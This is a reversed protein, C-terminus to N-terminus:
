NEAASETEAEETLLEPDVQRDEEAKQALNTARILGEAVSKFAEEEMQAALVRAKEVVWHPYHIGVALVADIVDYRIEEDQLIAKMRPMFFSELDAVLSERSRQLLDKEELSKLSLLILQKLSVKRWDQDLLIQLIGAARRRLGYPDQSGTPVIGIAFFSAITDMKDALGIVAGVVGTPLSDGPFRPLLHERVALAVEPDEGKQRAYEEGMVGELEPFEDVM